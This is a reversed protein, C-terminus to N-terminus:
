NGRGRKSDRRPYPSRLQKGLGRSSDAHYQVPFKFSITYPRSIARLAVIGVLEGGVAEQNDVTRVDIVDTGGQFVEASFHESEGSQLYRCRADRSQQLVPNIPKHM